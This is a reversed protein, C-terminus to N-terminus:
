WYYVVSGCIIGLLAGCVIDTFYHVRLYLRSFSIAVGVISVPVWFQFPTSPITAAMVAFSSATHGSPFSYKSPRKILEIDVIRYFPRPRKVIKKIVFECMFHELCVALFVKFAINKLTEMFLMPFFISFWILGKNGLFTSFMMIKNLIPSYITVIWKTIGEDFLQIKELYNM